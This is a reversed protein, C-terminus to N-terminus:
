HIFQKKIAKLLKLCVHILWHCMGPSTQYDHCLITGEILNQGNALVIFHGYFSHPKRHHYIIFHRLNSKYDFEVVDDECNRWLPPSM